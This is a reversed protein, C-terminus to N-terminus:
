KRIERALWHNVLELHTSLDDVGPRWPNQPTRHRSWRQWTKGDFQDNALAGITVGSTLALPPYVYVMDIQSEPYTGDIRVNLSIKEHNYGGPVPYGHIILRGAGGERVAEWELGSKMLYEEDEAPIKFERRM